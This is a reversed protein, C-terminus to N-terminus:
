CDISAALADCWPEGLEKQQMPSTYLILGGYVIVATVSSTSLANVYADGWSLSNAMPEPKLGCALIVLSKNCSKLKIIGVMAGTYDAQLRRM